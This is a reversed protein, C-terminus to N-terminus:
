SFHFDHSNLVGIKTNKLTLTDAGASIVVDQGVQSAHSLVSAFTDFVSKSFQITDHGAGRAVFDQIVDNGFNPAFVFTDSHGTGVLVDNGSTSVQRSGSNSGVSPAAPAPSAPIVPDLPHSMASVNGAADTATATFDHSGRSLASTTVSWDGSSDTTGTGVVTKGDYVAITSNAAATGTLLAHNTNVVSDNVLVPAAPAHTDVTVSLATSAASTQGSSTDTATFSHSGDALTATALTWGGSVSATATGIQKTGDYVTVTSDAAATGTLTLTNDNTIHDGVVGSDTSFSAIAPAARASADATVSIADLSWYSPDNRGSILLQSTGSTGVVDFTYETYGQAPADTLSLLTTGNWKVTFDNTGSGGANALWFTVTYNQGATTQIAQSLTADGGMAGINAAYKGSEAHGDVSAQPGAATVGSRGGVTWGSFSGTEFSGNTVLNTPASSSSGPVVPDLSQSLVSVNGATDTATATLDNPGSALAATTVTWSGNSGTTGTGIVTTGDYVTITSNAEATGTLLVHNTSVISDNVLVPASPAHTDVTVALATSAASTLGSSRDTATFSHSGDALTATTFTWAGSNNATATGLQKTGDFVTVTSNAVATGTLTLTNDNTIHDGVVGSDTSFSAITPAATASPIAVALAASAVSVNGAADTAKSTFSHSGSALNGTTLTWAGSANATATGVQTTGDFVTVTSNAEATGTLKVETTGSVISAASEVPANPAVTDVKVALASSAASTLGSSTDTATFSHNGDALAATTFTWAGSSNATATGLKTTGDYVTVTSSAVATGTLTLTKDNTIHDGVVGSDTSFSAITPAVPTSPITVALAASAVSVNGAADTAKSTFSQSGSALAGTTLSWAGSANATTTGLQTTGDFVTVTSNAEATGTLKVETTGSVISAASEVPANPAVTDVTVTLASSAASTLGSSTDTATFSHSGDALAATTFTWAGSSNATATGLKTIGDYVTVTSSAVATGTLTLTKDNTIHDGVVGSDKSFSAITPAAQVGGSTGSGSTSGATLSINDLDWQSAANTASFQLTSTSGTATVTYTYVTYGSQAANTLSLLTQGNWEVAFDNTGSTENQLAFTLTYTQGPTTAVTQSLTGNAGMSGLAASYISGATGDAAVLVQAAGSATSQYNGGLTWGTFDGTAFNGNAVLNVPINLPVVLASSLPSMDGLSDTATAAFSQSGNALSGTTFTWAGSANTVATGLKTSNDFVTITTFATATGQLTVTDAGVNVNDGSIVPAAVPASNPATTTNDTVTNNNSQNIFIQGVSAAQVNGTDNGYVANGTIVANATLFSEIGSSGNGYVTNSQVLIEGVFGPNTDLIIGEGDTVTNTGQTPVLQANGFVANGSIVDHVGANTDSNQSEWISIGSAGYASWHANNYVTNNLIQVYDANVASIGAAPENYITNNEITIHNPVVGTAPSQVAIGSGNLLATGPTNQTLATQLTYNAANGVVTFGEVNIYSAEILVGQWTGSSNIVPTAGPAAEFTIPASATGSTTIDVVVGGAPGTYTGNMVEVTDGPKVLNAADQLTALPDTASTGANNDSGILSSVYYTTM